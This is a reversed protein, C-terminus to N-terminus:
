LLKLHGLIANMEEASNPGVGLVTVTGAAIQTRGADCIEEAVFGALRCRQRIDLLENLDAVRLVIKPQGSALWESLLKPEARSSEIYCQVAAHSCQAAIKGKTLRLDSRVILALKTPKAIKTALKIHQIVRNM